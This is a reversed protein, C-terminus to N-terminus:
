GGLRRLAEIRPRRSKVSDLSFARADGLETRVYAETRRVAAALEANRGVFSAWAIEEADPDYEWLGVLRGRDLIPHSPIALVGLPQLRGEIEMEIAADGPDILGDLNRRAALLGDLSGVLAYDPECDAATGAFAEADEPLLLFDDDAAAPVLGLSNAIERCAKAGLGSFWQFEALRAPGIWRFYSRALARFAEEDALSATEHPNDPWLAYAFRQQDLRGRAPVRRISGASQLRGLALPLTTTIGKKKGAEGLSRAAGGTAARIGEPDLPGPALAALVAACLRDIEAETVGLTAAVKLEAGAFGRGVALALAYDAAPVVYVCGRASPLEQIELRALAADAAGRSIRGRAFLTLYPGVGGLSRAWGSRQLIEAAGRGELSGDLGQRRWWWLRLRARDIPM